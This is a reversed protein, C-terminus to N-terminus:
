EDRQEPQGERQADGEVHEPHGRGLVDFEGRFQLLALASLTPFAALTPVLLEWLNLLGVPGLLVTGLLSVVLTPATGGIGTFAFAADAADLVLAGAFLTRPSAAATRVREPPEFAPDFGDPFFDPLRIPPLTIRFRREDGTGSREERDDAM